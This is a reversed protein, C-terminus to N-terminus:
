LDSATWVTTDSNLDIAVPTYGYLNEITTMADSKQQTTADIKPHNETITKDRGDATKFRLKFSAM